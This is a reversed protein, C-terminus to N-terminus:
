ILSYSTIGVSTIIILFLFYNGVTDIKNLDKDSKTQLRYTVFIITKYIFLNIFVAILLSIPSILKKFTDRLMEKGESLSEILLKLSNDIRKLSEDLPDKKYKEQAIKYKDTNGHKNIADKSDFYEKKYIMNLKSKEFTYDYISSSVKFNSDIFDDVSGFLVQKNIDSLMKEKKENLLKNSNLKKNSYVCSDHTLPNKIQNLFIDCNDYEMFDDALEINAKNLSYFLAFLTGYIFIMMIIINLIFQLGTVKIFERKNM